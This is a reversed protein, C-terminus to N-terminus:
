EMCGNVIVWLTPVGRLRDRFEQGGATGREQGDPGPVVAQPPFLVRAARRVSGATGRRACM